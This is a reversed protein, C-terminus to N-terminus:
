VCFSEPIVLNNECYIFKIPIKKVPNSTTTTTTATSQQQSSKTSNYNMQMTDLNIMQKNSNAHPRSLPMAGSSSMQKNNSFIHIQNNTLM